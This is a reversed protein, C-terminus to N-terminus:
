TSLQQEEFILCNSMGDLMTTFYHYYKFSFTKTLTNSLCGRQSGPIHNFSVKICWYWYRQETSNDFFYGKIVLLHIFSRPQIHHSQDRDILLMKPEIEKIDLMIEENLRWAQTSAVGCGSTSAQCDHRAMAKDRLTGIWKQSFFYCFLIM